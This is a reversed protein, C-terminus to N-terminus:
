MEKGRRGPIFGTLDLGPRVAQQRGRPGRDFILETCLDPGIRWQDRHGKLLFGRNEFAKCGARGRGSCASHNVANRFGGHWHDCAVNFLIFGTWRLEFAGFARKLRTREAIRHVCKQIHQRILKRPIDGSSRQQM